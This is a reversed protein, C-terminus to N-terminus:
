AAPAIYNELLAVTLGAQHIATLAALVDAAFGMRFHMLIIDGPKIKHVSTQYYVTGDDVTESWYFAARLACDHVALLTTPDYDGYPPRFLTPTRGFTTALLDRGGCVENKQFDYPKGNLATHTLTHDEIVGGYTRLRKFFSPNRAAVPAILFMTFPIHAAKMVALDSPLQDNGDDITLFAVRQKTPLRYFIPAGPGAGLDVPVARPAAAFHPLKAIVQAVTLPKPKPKPKPTSARPDPSPTPTPSAAPQQTRAPSPGVWPWDGARSSSATGCATLASVALVLVAWRPRTALRSLRAPRLARSTPV